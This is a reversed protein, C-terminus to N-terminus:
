RPRSRHTKVYEITATDAAIYLLGASKWVRDSSADLVWGDATVQETLETGDAFQLHFGLRRLIPLSGALDWLRVRAVYCIYSGQILKAVSYVASGVSQFPNRGSFGGTYMIEQPLSVMGTSRYSRDIAAVPALHSFDWYEPDRSGRHYLVEDGSTIFLEGTRPLFLAGDTLRGSQMFGVSVGWTPLRNAYPATGDIPDVVWTTGALAADIESQAMSGSTEEGILFADDTGSALANALHAEIAHDAVTVLSTDAKHEAGPSTFHDLAIKGAEIMLDCVASVDWQTM